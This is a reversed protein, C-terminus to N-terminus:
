RPVQSVQADPPTGSLRRGNDNKSQEEEDPLFGESQDTSADEETLGWRADADRGPTKHARANPPNAPQKDLAEVAAGHFSTRDHHSALGGKRGAESAAASDWEHAHGSQHAAKGGKSAIMRQQEPQMAAFGRQNQAM